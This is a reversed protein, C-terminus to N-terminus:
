KNVQMEINLASNLQLINNYNGKKKEHWKIFDPNSIEVLKIKLGTNITDFTGGERIIEINGNEKFIVLCEMYGELGRYTAKVYADPLSDENNFRGPYLYIENGNDKRTITTNNYSYYTYNSKLSCSLFSLIVMTILFYRRKM